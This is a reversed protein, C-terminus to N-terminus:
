IKSLRCTELLRFRFQWSKYSVYKQVGHPAFHTSLSISICRDLGLQKQHTTCPIYKRSTLELVRGVKGYKTHYFSLVM